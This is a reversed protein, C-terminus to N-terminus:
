IRYNSYLEYLKKQRSAEKKESLAKPYGLRDNPAVFDRPDSKADILNNPSAVVNIFESARESLPNQITCRCAEMSRCCAQSAMIGQPPMMGCGPSSYAVSPGLLGAAILITLISKKLRVRNM